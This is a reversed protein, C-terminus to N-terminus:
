YKSQMAWLKKLNFVDTILAKLHKSCQDKPGAYDIIEIAKQKFYKLYAGSWNICNSFSVGLVLFLFINALKM